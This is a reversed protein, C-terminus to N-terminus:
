FAQIADDLNNFYSLDFIQFITEFKKRFM